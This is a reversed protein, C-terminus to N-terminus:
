SLLLFQGGKLIYLSPRCLSVQARKKYLLMFTIEFRRDYSVIRSLLAKTLFLWTVRNM